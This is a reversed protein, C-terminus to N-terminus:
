QIATSLRNPSSCIIPIKRFAPAPAFLGSTHRRNPDRIHSKCTSLLTRRSSSDSARQNFDRLILIRPQFFQQGFRHQVVRRELVM